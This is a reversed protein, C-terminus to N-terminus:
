ETRLADMPSVNTARWAPISCAVLAGCLILAIAAGHSVPDGSHVGYLQNQILEAAIVAIALGVLCGAFAFGLGERVVEWTVQWADAGLARRVGFEHRRLAVTYALVGYVGISTLAFAVLAFAAALLVTFRRMSRAAQVYSEMPRVDYIPLRADLARVAGRIEPVISAPKRDTEVLYAMPDRQWQGFSVFIQPTLATVLSRLKIHRVVGVVSVRLDPIGQGILFHQGLASRNPWLQRALMDDVIVIPRTSRDDDETFFRGEILRVGLTEFLGSSIARTDASPAGEHRLSADIAGAVDPRYSLAWNPLDDYPLNSIAGVRTVGPIASLRHRLERALAIVAAETKYREEPVAMRFTLHPAVRFGPDVRLVEVFTRLLLGAGVLLVVSLAIQVVVLAARVRYRVPTARVRRLAGLPRQGGRHLMQALPALSLLLGWVTAIGLTFALVSLSIRSSSMRNLSEPAVALLGDLAVSAVFVGAVAGLFTLFLGEVLHQRVLRGFSAGLALRLSTEGARAAARAILLGAVNVCAIM